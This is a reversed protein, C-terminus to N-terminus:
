YCLLDKVCFAAQLFSFSPLLPYKDTPIKIFPTLLIVKFLRLNQLAILMGVSRYFFNGIPRSGRATNRAMIRRLFPVQGLLSLM